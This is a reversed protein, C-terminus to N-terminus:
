PLATVTAHLKFSLDPTGRYNVHTEATIVNTGDVLLDVPVTVTVPSANAATTRPPQPSAFTTHTITGSPMRSRVVEVGNVYIVVGDDAVSSLDLSVVKSADALSFEKRFYVARPRTDTAAAVNLTTSVLSSGYGIPAAGSSWSTADFTLSKWNASPAAVGYYYSWQANEAVIEATTPTGVSVVSTAVGTAGANDTVTLTVTYSGAVDYTHSPSVESSTQGDGFNWAHSVISGDADSSGAGSFAVSLGSVLSGIVASPVQNVSTGGLVATARLKFSLDPTGRYNVHTEATIVNTGDVLLDVPVTVTVPSANAATTRPPQPSAFTTHTITGSPMRSRVVEVGNVYIVVGDDAVSSLDLSVVKSADALSFEKRFYVARPRTDTAAAVNLTTSVLSSGYGIPAAGSSWSTADFTLSKWNASPAAVGYYYSWQANEAVIEATTPTGVSVVSTAVGTAGANDTVTLTVTYSGAVDYTHSPSVESSTQGDGFNWAHSVISGDADSSGAGSFAVSLGSVLSGIVASPVQNVPAVTVSASVSTAAGDDDTVTLSVTFTGGSAYTHSPNASTSTQGDGFSWSYGIISGDADASGASSFAVQLGIVSSGIVATPGNNPAAVTITKVVTAVAGDDDTVTLTVEYSGASAYTHVPAILESTGGDGFSWGYSSISGDSDTSGAADFTATLGSMSSEFLATPANNAAAVTVVTSATHTAGDDDTVTLSVTYSGSAAYVHTPGADTSTEGDGFVWQYSVISGDSDTSDAATFTVSLGTAVSGIVATPGVNAPAVTVSATVVGEEGDDDTVSLTVDYTGASSYAHTPSSETSTAGDGFNWSYSEITGDIDVSGASSFAVTLYTAVSGIVAVPPANAPEVAITATSTGTAGDDDAVTLSVSYTGGAAYNHAPTAQTSTGGDGFDWLYSVVDGDSDSSGLGDFSVELFEISTAILAIPAENPAVAAVTRQVSHQAGDDDTVVLTVTFIGASAYTHTANVGTATAGDGFDWVYSAITGDSDASGAGDATVTLDVISVTSAAVPPVNPPATVTIQAISTASAGRDDTVTLTVSYTGPSDYTHTAALVGTVSASGDGFDWSTAVLNGDIDNSTSGDVSVTLNEVASTFSATPAVNDRGTGVLYHREIQAATLPASYLAFEDIGGAFYQAGAWTSDGGLRWYGSYAQAPAPLTTEGIFVGDVFLQLVGSGLQAVVHHWEGDNLATATTVTTEQGTWVGARLRGDPLMFVARDYNNSSGVRANGFGIIKGGATTTTRIWAETAYSTPGDILADAAVGQGQGNFSLSGLGGVVASASNTTPGAVTGAGFGNGSADQVIGNKSQDLRWFASPTNALVTRAYADDTVVPPLDIGLTFHQAVKAASLATTYVAAEDIRGAFYASSSGWTNDGGVRWYGTYNEAGTQPHTGALVGDIYLRMGESSQTAVVHHWRGDNYPVSSTIKNEVGTYVGFVLRGDDQMYVHRDYSNSRGSPATGFGIIKGGRNTTTQFWAETSYTTPNSVPTTSVVVDDAGDFQAATNGSVIGDLGRAVGQQYVARNNSKGSDAAVDRSTEALRWFAWPEEDFVAGGYADVPRPQELVLALTTRGYAGNIDRVYLTVSYQGGGVYEHVVTPGTTTVSEGDGFVWTYDEVAVSSLSSSADFAVSLGAPANTFAASPKSIGGPVTLAGTSASINGASDIARVFYRREGKLPVIVSTSRTEAVVRDDLLIQYTGATGTGLGGSPATWALTTTTASQATMRFNTPVGPATVDAQPFRAFGGLWASGSASTRAGTIDGGVWVTEDASGVQVAWPGSGARTSLNPNFTPIYAGTTTDWAAVWHIDNVETWSSGVNPWTYSGSYSFQRCHCTGFLETGTTGYAQFDGGQTATIDGSLREYTADDFSFNAHESGGVWVRDGVQEVAQQYSSAASWTPIWDVVLDAGPATSVAAVNSTTTDRYSTFNGAPYAVAGDASVDVDRVGGKVEARWNTDPRGDSDIRMLNRSYVRGGASGTGHTFAGAIYLQDGSLQATQVVVVGGGVANEMTLNWGAAVAGTAPNLSVAGVAPQGNVTTFRGGVFLNGNPLAALAHVQENLVPAFSPIFEGTTANFAALFPRDVRGSGASTRQVYAFNGGVYMTNGIQAFAQVEVSSMHTESGALGGVGWPNTLAFSSPQKRNQAVATGTDPIRSFQASFNSIKPRVYIETVPKAYGMSTTSSWLYSSADPTGRVQSGYAFGWTYNQDTKLSSDVRRFSSDFGYNGVTGGTGAQGDFSFSSVGEVSGWTWKWGKAKALKVRVEQWASGDITTARRLRVGDALASVATGDLLADITSASMQATTGTPAAPQLLTADSGKGIYKTELSERGQGVKVWGGGDTVMDCYVQVPRPMSPTLVWYAGSESTPNLQKIEWCSAGATDMTMGTYAAPDLFETALEEPTAATAVPAVALVLGSAFIAGIAIAATTRSM